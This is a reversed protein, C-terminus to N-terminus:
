SMCSIFEVKTKRLMVYTKLNKKQLLFLHNNSKYKTLEYLM